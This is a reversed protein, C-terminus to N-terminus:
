TVRLACARRWVRGRTRVRAERGRRAVNEALQGFAAEVETSQRRRFRASLKRRTCDPREQQAVAGIAPKQQRQADLRTAARRRHAEGTVVGTTEAEVAIPGLAGHHGGERGDDVENPVVESRRGVSVADEHLRRGARGRADRDRQRRRQRRGGTRRRQGTQTPQADVVGSSPTQSSRPCRNGIRGVRRPGARVLPVAHVTERVRQRFIDVLLGLGKEPTVREVKSTPRNQM